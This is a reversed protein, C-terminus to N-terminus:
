WSFLERLWKLSAQGGVAPIATTLPIGKPCVRVCNQANGCEAVGGTGLMAEVHDDHHM